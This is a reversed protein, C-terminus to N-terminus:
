ITGADWGGINVDFGADRAIQAHKQAYEASCEEMEEMEYPTDSLVYKSAGVQHFPLIHVRKIGNLGSLFKMMAYFEDGDNVGPIFPIRVIINKGLNALKMLNLLIQQNPKGTWKEHVDSHYAKLDFLFLDTHEAVKLIIKETCFGCTEMATHVGEARLKQFLEVCFDAHMTPEGGSITVGGGSDRYFVKDRMVKEFAEEVSMEGGCLSKAEIYCHDVCAGCGTCKDRDIELGDQTIINCAAPCHALCRGCALCKEKDFLVIPKPLLNEPNQCWKCRLPCGMVFLVTRLGPGDYVCCKQINSVMASAM